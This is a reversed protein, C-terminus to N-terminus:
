DLFLSDFPVIVEEDTEDVRVVVEDNEDDFEIIEGFFDEDDISVGVRSGVDIEDEDDDKDDEDADGESEASDADEDSEDEGADEAEEAEDDDEADSESDDGAAERRATIIKKRWGRAQVFIFALDIFALLAIILVFTNFHFTMGPDVTKEGSGIGIFQLIKVSRSSTDGDAEAAVPVGIFQNVATGLLMAGFLALLIPFLIDVWTKSSLKEQLPTPFDEEAPNFNADYRSKLGSLFAVLPNPGSPEPEAEDEEAKEEEELDDEEEEDEADDEEADDEEAEDEPEDEAADDEEAEDEADDEADDEEAEDEDAADEAGDEEAEDAPAEDPESEPEPAPEPEPEPEPAPEPIDEESDEVSAFSVNCRWCKTATLPNLSGCAGCEGMPETNLGSFSVGCSDCKTSDMPLLTGCAGCAAMDQNDSLDDTDSSM